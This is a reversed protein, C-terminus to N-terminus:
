KLKEEKVRSALEQFRDAQDDAGLKRHMAALNGYPVALASRDLTGQQAAQEMWKVGKESLAIAKQRQGTEWYSVGITVLTEGHRGLNGALEDPTARDLLPVAKDFWAVAAQHDHHSIAHIAGLRFYLRGLLLTSAPAPNAQNAQALYKAADEGYRLAADNDSRMQCIQVADYLAMGLEWELQTKRGPESAADILGEGSRLVATAAPEPDIEGRLGVYAALSRAHVRFLLERSGGENGVVDDAAEAARELWRAVAKPKEKWQGWAIDHAAGLHADILM